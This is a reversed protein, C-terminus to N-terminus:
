LLFGINATFLTQDINRGGNVSDKYTQYRVEFRTSIHQSLWLGLGGGFTALSTNGSDLAVQGVGAIVYLDFQSIGKDFLNLKGYLPYWNFVLMASDNAYDMQPLTNSLSPFNAAQDHLYKGESSLDNDYNSYTLGISYHPTIHFDLRANAAKTSIYPDGGNAFGYGGSFELRLNRDVARRQIVRIRNEPDLAQIRSLIEQNAGLSNLDDRLNGALSTLSLLFVALFPFLKNTKM